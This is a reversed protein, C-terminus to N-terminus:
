KCLFVIFLTSLVISVIIHIFLLLIKIQNHRQGGANTNTGAETDARVNTNETRVHSGTPSVTTRQQYQIREFIIIVIVIWGVWCSFIPVLGPRSRSMLITMLFITPIVLTFALLGTIRHSWDFICRFRSQPHCRYLALWIQIMVCCVIIGGCISHVFLRIDSTQPNIWQGGAHVLILLFGLLTLIPTLSLFFRHIQFWVAKGLLQRRSGLKLSRGYRAFLIGTSAFVMWALIMVTGHAQILTLTM